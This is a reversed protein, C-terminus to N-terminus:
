AGWKHLGHACYTHQKLDLHNMFIGFLIMDVAIKYRGGPPKSRSHAFPLKRQM